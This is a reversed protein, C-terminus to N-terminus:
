DAIKYNILASRLPDSQELAIKKIYDYKTVKYAEHAEQETEFLGLYVAKGRASFSASFKECEDNFIVGIKYKGRSKDNGLLLSNIFGSVFLCTNPSYLKNGQVLIDKDLHKDHWDQKIMWNKFNSFTLWEICVLCEKYTNYKEHLKLSYCREIMARWKQYYPCLLRKGNVTPQTIYDADNIGVGFVLKRQAISNKNATIKKFQM